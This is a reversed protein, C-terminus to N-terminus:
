DRLFFPAHNSTFVPPDNRLISAVAPHRRFEKDLFRRVTGRDWGTPHRFGTYLSLDGEYHTRTEFKWAEPGHVPMNFIALNLYNIFQAHNVTFDLTRRAEAPGESPTGFLLYVYTGIGAASLTKLAESALRLDVGKEERDLVSQDGSEVGLKLMVCGSRKLARCFNPDSLHHTFRAFGFWAPGPPHAVLTDMLAPSLANDLLHIMVPRFRATLEGLNSVARGLPVQEYPNGEAREPCFACRSWYCGSSGSYPLVMGPAFYDNLPLNEFDPIGPMKVTSAPVDLLSLLPAEGPGAIVQDILGSFPNKWGPSRAWSTALGGGLVLKMEPFSQRIFGAMAFACLAQSLFNLSIGVHSPHHLEILHTLREKFYGFFPNTEPKDAAQLLDESRVPSLRPHQYNTLTLRAGEPLSIVRLLHDLEHVARSYRDLNEYGGWCRLLELNRKRNRIARSTQHDVASDPLHLLQVIGEINADLVVCETDNLRLAGALGAIGPPPACPQFVPPHLLLIL